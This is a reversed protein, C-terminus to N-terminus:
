DVRLLDEWSTTYSQSKYSQKTGWVPNLPQTGLRLSHKNFRNNIQDMADSLLGIQKNKVFLLNEQSSSIETLNTLIVGCKTYSINEKYIKRLGRLAAKIIVTTHYTPPEIAISVSAKYGKVKKNFPNTTVFVTIMGSTTHQTRAKFAARSVFTTVAEKLDSYLTINKGFSRSCRIEKKKTEDCEMMFCTIGNLEYIIREMNISFKKRMFIPNSKKLDLVSCVGKAQLKLSLANGVGWLQDVPLSNMINDMKDKAINTTIFIGQWYPDKKACRNALKALVKTPGIGVCVPMRLYRWLREKIEQAIGSLNHHGNMDLFCEDISYVEQIDTFESLLTMARNSIDAYLPYNSSLVGVRHKKVITMAKFLPQGMKIGLDKAEQSRSIICGDNNSLVVIPRDRLRPNFLRECSVYFNNVDVLAIM